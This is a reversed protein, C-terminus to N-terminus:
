SEILCKNLLFLFFIYSFCSDISNSKKTKKIRLCISGVNKERIWECSVLLPWRFSHRITILSVFRVPRFRVFFCRHENLSWQNSRKSFLSPFILRYEITRRRDISYSSYLCVHTSESKEGTRARRRINFIRLTTTHAHPGVSLCLFHSPYFSTCQFFSLVVPLLLLLPILSSTHLSYLFVFSSFFSLSCTNLSLGIM